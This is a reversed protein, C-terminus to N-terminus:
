EAINIETEHDTPAASQVAAEQLAPQCRQKPETRKLSHLMEDAHRVTNPRPLIRSKLVKGSHKMLYDGSFM